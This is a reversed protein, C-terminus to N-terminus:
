LFRDPSITEQRMLDRLERERPRCSLLTLGHLVNLVYKCYLVYICDSTFYILLLLIIYIIVYVYIIIYLCSSYTTEM